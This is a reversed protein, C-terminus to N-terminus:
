IPHSKPNNKYLIIYILEEVGGKKKENESTAVGNIKTV